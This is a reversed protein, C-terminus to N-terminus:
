LTKQHCLLAKNYETEPIRIRHTKPKIRKLSYYQYDIRCVVIGKFKRGFISRYYRSPNCHHLHGTCACLAKYEAVGIHISFRGTVRRGVRTIDDLDTQTM